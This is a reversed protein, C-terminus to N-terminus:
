SNQLHKYINSAISEVVPVAVSNGFQKYVQTNSVVIKFDEPFGQLRAIERPTLKRPNKDQQAVLAEAGDKYYRATITNTFPSTNTFVTHGFSSGKAMHRAKKAELWGWLKDSLTYKDDVVDELVDGLTTPTNLPIPFEFPEQNDLIAVIYIRERRQPVGFQNANLVETYVSYGMDELVQKIVKFTNGKDHTLLGKM